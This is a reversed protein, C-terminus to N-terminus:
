FIKSNIKTLMLTKNYKKKKIFIVNNLNNQPKTM